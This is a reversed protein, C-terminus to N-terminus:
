CTCSKTQHLENVVHPVKPEDQPHASTPVMAAAAVLNGGQLVARRRVVTERKEPM